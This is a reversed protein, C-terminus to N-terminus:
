LQPLRRVRQELLPQYKELGANVVRVVLVQHEVTSREHAKSSFPRLLLEHNHTLCKPTGIYKREESGKSVAKHPLLYNFGCDKKAKVTTNRQRNTVV